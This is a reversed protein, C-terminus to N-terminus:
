APKVSDEHLEGGGVRRLFVSRNLLLLLLPPMAMLLGAVAAGHPNAEQVFLVTRITLTPVKGVGILQTLGYEFWSLLFCQFLGVALWPLGLPLVVDSWLRRRDAGLSRAQFLVKRFQENWFGAFFLVAYPFVFLWQALFVGWLTGSWGLRAWWHQWLVGLIVPAVLYPFYALSFLWRRQAHRAIRGAMWFGAMSASLAVTGSLGLSLGLGARLGSSNSWFSSWHRLTFRADSLLAPYRWQEVVSLYVLGILPLLFLAGLLSWMM